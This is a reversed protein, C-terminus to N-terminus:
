NSSKKLITTAYVNSFRQMQQLKSQKEVIIMKFGHKEVEDNEQRPITSDPNLLVQFRSERGCRVLNITTALGGHGRLTEEAKGPSRRRHPRTGTRLLGPHIGAGPPVAGPHAAPLTGEGANEQPHLLSSNTDASKIM